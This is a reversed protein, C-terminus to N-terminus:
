KQKFTLPIQVTYLIPDTDTTKQFVELNIDRKRPNRYEITKEFYSSKEGLKIAGESLLNNETDSIKYYVTKEQAQVYGAIIFKTLVEANNKPENVIIYPVKKMDSFSIVAVRYTNLPVAPKLPNEFRFVIQFVDEKLVKFKWESIYEGVKLRLDNETIIKHDSLNVFGETVPERLSWQNFENLQGRLVILIIDGPKAYIIQNNKETADVVVGTEAAEISKNIPSSVVDSKKMKCATVSIFILLLLFIGFTKKM